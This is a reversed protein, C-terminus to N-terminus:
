FIISLFYSSNLRISTIKVNVNVVKIQVDVGNKNKMLCKVVFIQFCHQIPVNVRLPGFLGKRGTNYM